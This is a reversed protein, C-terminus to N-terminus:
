PTLRMILVLFSNLIFRPLSIHPTHMKKQLKKPLLFRVEYFATVAFNTLLPM